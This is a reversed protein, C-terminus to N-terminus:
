RPARLQIVNVESKISNLKKNDRYYGSVGCAEVPKLTQGIFIRLSGDSEVDFGRVFTWNNETRYLEPSVVKSPFAVNWKGVLDGNQGFVTAQVHMNKGSSESFQLIKYGQQDCWLLSNHQEVEAYFRKKDPGTLLFEYLSIGSTSKEHGIRAYTAVQALESKRCGITCRFISQPVYFRNKDDLDVPPLVPPAVNKAAITAEVDKFKERQYADWKAGFSPSIPPGALACNSSTLLSDQLEELTQGCYNPFKLSLYAERNDITSYDKPRNTDCIGYYARTGLRGSSKPSSYMTLNSKLQKPADAIRVQEWGGRLYRYIRISEPTANRQCPGDNEQILWPVGDVIDFGIPQSYGSGEQWVVDGITPISASLYQSEPYGSGPLSASAMAWRTEARDLIVVQQDSSTVSERWSTNTNACGQIFIALSVAIAYSHINM